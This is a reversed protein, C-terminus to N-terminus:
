RATLIYCISSHVLRTIQRLQPVEVRSMYTKLLPTKPVKPRDIIGEFRKELDMTEFAMDEGDGEGSASQSQEEKWQDLTKGEGADKSAVNLKKLSDEVVSDMSNYQWWRLNKDELTRKTIEVVSIMKNCADAKASLVVVACRQKETTTWSFNNELLKLLQSVKSQINSNRTIVMEVIDFQSGLLKRDTQTIALETPAPIEVVDAGRSPLTKTNGM